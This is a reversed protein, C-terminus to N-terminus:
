GSSGSSTGARTASIAPRTWRPHAEPAAPCRERERSTATAAGALFGELWGEFNPMGGGRTTESGAGASRGNGFTVRM